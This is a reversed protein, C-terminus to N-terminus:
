RFRLSRFEMWGVRIWRDQGDPRVLTGRNKEGVDSSLSRQLSRVDPLAEPDRRLRGRAPFTKPDVGNMELVRGDRLTIRLGHSSGEDPGLREMLVVKSFEVQFTEDEWSGDLIEWSSGEDADWRILGTLEAGTVTTVTGKLSAGGDFRQRTAAEWGPVGPGFPHIRVSRVGGLGVTVQGLGPDSVQIRTRPDMDGAALLLLTGTDKPTMRIGHATWEISEIERFSLELSRGGIEVGVLSDTFFAHRGDWSLFGCFRRGSRDEVTGYLRSSTPLVEGPASGFEVEALDEWALPVTKGESVEVLFERMDHGLDTSGGPLIMRIGPESHSAVDREFLEVTVGSLLEVAVSDGGLVRIRQIHGFRVGSETATGVETERDDWTIRYGGYEIVRDEPVPDPGGDPSWDEAPHWDLSKSGRLLDVWSAKDMDWLIFGEHVKGQVTTVRGWLRAQGELETPAQAGCALPTALLVQLAISSAVAVSVSCRIMGVTESPGSLM